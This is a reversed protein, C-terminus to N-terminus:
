PASMLRRIIKVSGSPFPIQKMDKLTAWRQHSKLKEPFSEVTCIYAHLKVQFQTYAHRVTIYPVTQIVEMGTEEKIERRLAAELSEEKRKKGGPFEWLGALLGKQPRQQIFYREQKQILGIVADIKKYNKKKPLPIVEQVGSKYALCFGSVPCHLCSPNRPLCILAGLEMVAQNFQGPDVKIIESTFYNMIKKERNRISGNTLKLLRMGVRKVNADMVPYPQGYAISLVAAATYPGFGPLEILQKYERPIFGQYRTTIIRAAQLLNKVRKYYGLGEWMKLVNQETARNLSAIDPFRLIWKQYYPIVTQVTTQQLMVESIWLKYPDGTDRWPLGRKNERYWSLLASSFVDSNECSV